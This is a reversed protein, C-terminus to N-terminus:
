ATDIQPTLRARREALAERTQAPNRKKEPPAPMFGEERLPDSKDRTHASTTLFQGYFLTLERPNHGGNCTQAALAAARGAKALGDAHIRLENPLDTGNALRQALAQLDVAVSCLDALLQARRPNRPPQM